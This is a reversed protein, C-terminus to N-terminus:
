HKIRRRRRSRRSPTTTAKAAEDTVTSTQPKQIITKPLSEFAMLSTKMKDFVPPRVFLFKQLEGVSHAADWKWSFQAVHMLFRDRINISDFYDRETLVGFTQGSAQNLMASLREPTRIFRTQIKPNYHLYFATRKVDPNMSYLIIQDGPKAFHNIRAAFSQAIPRDLIPLYLLKVGFLFLLASGIVAAPILATRRMVLMVFVCVSGVLLLFPVPVLWLKWLPIAEPLDILHKAFDLNELLPKGPWFWFGQVYESPIIQFILLTLGVACALTVLILVAVTNEFREQRVLAGQMAQGLYGGMLLALPPYFPLMQTMEQSHSLSLTILGLLFWLIAWWEWQAGPLTSGKRPVLSPETMLAPLFILFPLYDVPLRKLYFLPDCIVNTWLGTGFFQSLPMTVLYNLTFLANGEHISVGLFWLAPILVLPLVFDQLTIRTLVRVDRELLLYALAIAALLLVSGTGKDLVLLGLLVGFMTSYVRMEAPQTHRRSALGHWKVWALAFALYLVTALNDATSLSGMYFFGWGIGLTCASFIASERSKTVELSLAYTLALAILSGIVAPMRAISLGVGFLKFLLSVIWGWLPARELYAHGALQPIWFHGSGITEKASQLHFFETATELELHSLSLTFLVAFAGLLILEPLFARLTPIKNM